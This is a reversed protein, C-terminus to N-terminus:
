EASDRHEGMNNGYLKNTQKKFKISVFSNVPSTNDNEEEVSFCATKVNTREKRFARNKALM